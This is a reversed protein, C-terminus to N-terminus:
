AHVKNGYSACPNEDKELTSLMALFDFIFYGHDRHYSEFQFRLDSLPHHSALSPLNHSAYALTSVAAQDHCRNRLEVFSCSIILALQETQKATLQM